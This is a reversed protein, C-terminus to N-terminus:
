PADIHPEPLYSTTIPPKQPPDTVLSVTAVAAALLALLFLAWHRWRWLRRAWEASVSGAGLDRHLVVRGFAM